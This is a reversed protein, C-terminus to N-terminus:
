NRTVVEDLNLITSAVVAWSALEVPDLSADAPSEGNTLLKKALEPNKRYTRRQKELVTKLVACEAPKPLRATALRFAFAVKADTDAPAETLMREALKRSAEIYTPDNLLILAQLPTNTRARRVTCVERDPADFTGLQPPPSTRKWFTYMSRRYLDKGHSSTYKQATWNDGDTRAMLEEWLGAPQYPLVSHGGVRANLLGSVALAQDRIFEAQLRFRPGRALLRNEPDNQVLQPTVFSSQRYASSTLVLRVMAKVDWGTRVFETALWDLLQRNAPYEGQSGFDEATKVLGTGFFTQWYRNVTVRATLPHNGGVLWKALGLRNRPLEPPMPPLMAPTAPTLKDGPKDYQGRILLFTDRPKPMEQMVMATPIAANLTIQRQRLEALTQRLPALDTSVNERYFRRLDTRQADTREDAASRLIAQVNQPLADQDHPRSGGTVALRFLGPQHRAYGSNFEVAISIPTGPDLSLPTALEFIAHHPKGAQPFIAWGPRKGQSIVSAVPFGDQSFDASASKFPIETGDALELRVGTMVVNGNESRGPGHGALSDHPLMELRIATITALTAPATLTYTEKEPNPGTALISLDDLTKFTSGNASKLAAAKLISWQTTQQSAKTEWVGQAADVGANDALMESEAKRIETALQDITSKQQRTPAQIFPVANGKSGDLGNEPVNNFFAYFSYYDRSTLPDFKHDHCQCCNMSLGLWVTSTTNVRDVLYANHYEEPIAGGEFNIMHNRNFGSAIKQDLTAGPLLDGALQEITFRDFPMNTNFAEIVWERWRTMDRGSDIHYGHTDAYRAADLWDVAMREGFHPSALLRDILKEYADPSEDALYADIEALTPPLGTLDLTARRILTERSAGASPKLGDRELKALVFADIPNRAWAADKVAPIEPRAPPVFSWHTSYNAKEAIWRKLTDIQQPTLKKGTKRPPMIEEPDDATIRHVLMSKDLDGPVIAAGDDHQALADDRRDLRLGAKRASSDPGHCAFCNNSLIPRIDREFNVPDARVPLTSLIATALLMLLGSKM